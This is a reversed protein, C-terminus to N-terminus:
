NHRVPEAWAEALLERLKREPLEDVPASSEEGYSYEPARETLRVGWQRFRTSYRLGTVPYLQGRQPRPLTLNGDLLTGVFM